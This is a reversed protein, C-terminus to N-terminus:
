NAALGTVTFKIDDPSESLKIDNSNFAQVTCTYSGASLPKDLVYSLGDVRKNIFDYETNAGSSSDAYISFKYYAAEPYTDWKVEINNGAIKSGAKPNLLKLNNKFLNTDPAFFTKDPEIKYKAAGVIGSTAFVFYNTDFVKVTLGEYIGPPVNKILYEGQNDTKTTFIKGNCGGFYQNFKECLKVEVAAAPQQNYFAKGQVNGTGPAPKEKETGTGSPITSDADPKVPATTTKTTASNSNEPQNSNGGGSLKCGVVFAVLLLLSVVAYEGGPKKGDLSM